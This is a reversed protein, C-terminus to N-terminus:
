FPSILFDRHPLNDVNWRRLVDDHRSDFLRDLKLSEVHGDCFVINLCQRHRRELLKQDDGDLQGLNIALFLYSRVLRRNASQMVGDGIAIMNAPSRVKNEPVAAFFRLDATTGSGAYWGGLGLEGPRPEGPLGPAAGHGWTSLGLANYGYSGYPDGVSPYDKSRDSPCHKVQNPRLDNRSFPPDWKIHLYGELLGKWSGVFSMNTGGTVVKYYTPYAGADQVYMTLALGIQRLNSKCHISNAQAKAHSLAPLLLAALIAIIALVVLLEILTFARAPRFHARNGRRFPGGSPALVIQMVGVAGFPRRLLGSADVYKWNSNQLGCGCEEAPWLADIMFDFDVESWAAASPLRNSEM